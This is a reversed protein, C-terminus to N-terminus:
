WMANHPASTSGGVGGKKARDRWEQHSCHGKRAERLFEEGGVGGSRGHSGKKRADARESGRLKM